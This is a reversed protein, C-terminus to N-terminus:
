GAITIVEGEFKGMAGMDSPTDCVDASAAGTYAFSAAAIAAVGLMKTKFSM